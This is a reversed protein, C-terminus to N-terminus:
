EEKIIKSSKDIYFWKGDKMVHANGESFDQAYTYNFPIVVAGSKNIFGWKMKANSVPALGESFHSASSYQLEIVVKGIENIFGYLSNLGVKAMGESFSSADSYQLKVVETGTSDIYGWKNGIKVAAKRESFSLAEDYILPVVLKGQETVFGHKGSKGAKALGCNYDDVYDYEKEWKAPKQNQQANVIFPLLIALPIFFYKKM